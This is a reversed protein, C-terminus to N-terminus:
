GLLTKLAEINRFKELLRFQTSTPAPQLNRGLQNLKDAYQQLLTNDADESLLAEAIIHLMASRLARQQADPYPWRSVEGLGEVLLSSLTDEKPPLARMSAGGLLGIEAGSGNDGNLSGMERAVIFGDRLAEPTNIGRGVNTIATGVAETRKEYLTRMQEQHHLANIRDQVQLERNLEQGQLDYKQNLDEMQIQRDRKRLEDQRTSTARDRFLNKQEEVSTATRALEVQETALLESKRISEDVKIKTADIVVAEAPLKRDLELLVIELGLTAAYQNIKARDTALVIRELERFREKVMDWKRPGCSRKITQAIMEKLQRLPDQGKLEALKRPNSARLSLRFVLTFKRIDNDLEAEEEFTYSLVSQNVAIGFYKEPSSLFPLFFRKFREDSNVIKAFKAGGRELKEFVVVVYGPLADLGSHYKLLDQSESLDIIKPPEPIPTEAPMTDM